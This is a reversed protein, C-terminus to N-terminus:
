RLFKSGKILGSNTLWDSRQRNQYNASDDRSVNKNLLQLLVEHTMKVDALAGHAGAPEKGSLHKYVTGLKHNAIVQSGIVRRAIALTDFVGDPLNSLRLDSRDMENCIIRQDYPFNYATMWYPDFHSLWECFESVAQAVPMEDAVMEDTIGHIETAGEPIPIGPNCRREFASAVLGTPDVYIAAIEVIRAENPNLGTTETDGIVLGKKFM